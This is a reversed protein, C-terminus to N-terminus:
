GDPANHDFRLREFLFARIGNEIIMSPLTNIEMKLALFSLARSARATNRTYIYIYININYYGYLCYVDICTNKMNIKNYYDYLKCM